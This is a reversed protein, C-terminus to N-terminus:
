AKFIHTFNEFQTIQASLEFCIAIMIEKAGWQEVKIDLQWNLLM